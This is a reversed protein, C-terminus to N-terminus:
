DDSGIHGYVESRKLDPRRAQDAMDAGTQITHKDPGAEGKLVAIRKVIAHRGASSLTGAGLVKGLMSVMVGRGDAMGAQELVRVGIADARVEEDRSSQCGKLSVVGGSLHRGDLLHGVEHAIAAALEREDLLEVLGRTVYVSGDAWGYACPVDSALVRVVVGQTGEGILATARVLIARDGRDLGGHESVWGERGSAGTGCGATQCAVFILMVIVRPM